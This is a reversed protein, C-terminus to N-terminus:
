RLIFPYNVARGCSCERKIRALEKSARRAARKWHALQKAIHDVADNMEAFVATFEDKAAKIDMATEFKRVKKIIGSVEKKAAKIDQQKELQKARKALSPAGAQEEDETSSAMADLEVAEEAAEACMKDFEEGAKKQTEHARPSTIVREPESSSM